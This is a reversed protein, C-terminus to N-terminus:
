TPDETMDNNSFIMQSNEDREVLRVEGDVEIGLVCKM